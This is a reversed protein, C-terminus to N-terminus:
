PWEEHAECGHIWYCDLNGDEDESCVEDIVDTDGKCPGFRDQDEAAWCPAGCSCGM